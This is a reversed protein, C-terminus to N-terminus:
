GPQGKMGRVQITSVVEVQVPVMETIQRKVVQGDIVVEVERTVPEFRTLSQKIALTQQAADAKDVVTLTFTVSQAQAPLALALVSLAAFFSRQSM